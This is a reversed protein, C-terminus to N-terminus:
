SLHNSHPFSHILRPICYVFPCISQKERAINRFYICDRYMILGYCSQLLMVATGGVWVSLIM